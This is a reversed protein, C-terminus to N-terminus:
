SNRGRVMLRGKVADDETRASRVEATIGETSDLAQKLEDLGQLSATTLELELSGTRWSLGTVRVGDNRSLVPGVLVLTEMLDDGQSPDGRLQSLRSEVRTRAQRADRAEPYVQQLLGTVQTDLTSIEARMARQDLLAQGTDLVLWIAFLVGAAAWPRWLSQRAHVPAYDGTLLNVSTGNKTQRALIPLLDSVRQRDGAITELEPALPPIETETELLVLAEPRTVGAEDLAVSLLTDLNPTDGAFGGHSGTRVLTTEAEALVTWQGPEWPLCLTEPVMLDPSLNYDALRALWSDLWSREVVAVSWSGDPQRKGPVFHLQEVDDALQDELAYPLAKLLKHRNQTPVSAHTLLVRLGSALAIIQQGGAREALATLDEGTGRDLIHGDGDLQLWAPPADPDADLRLILRSSM